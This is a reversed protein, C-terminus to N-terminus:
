QTELQVPADGIPPTVFVQRLNHELDYAHIQNKTGDLAYLYGPAGQNVSLSIANSAKIRSLRQGSKADVMWIEQGPNKHTGEHGKPHMAIFLHGSSRHLAQVEYGGPRWGQKSDAGQVLATTQEIKPEEGGLNARTLNGTFSIFYYQDGDQAATIFAADKDADFFKKSPARKLISGDPGLTVTNLTGDGCLMSFRLAYTQSPYLAWCGPSPIEALVKRESLDVVTVSTAPTANQVFLYRGDGSTRLLGKYFLAQAHKKPLLVEGKLRLTDADYIELVDSREGHTHRSLFTAAIYVEKGNPSVTFQGAYGADIGGAYRGNKGDLVFVRGDMLHAIAFDAVYLRSMNDPLSTGDKLREPQFDQAYCCISVTLAISATLWQRITPIASGSSPSRHLKLLTM